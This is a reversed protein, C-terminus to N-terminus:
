YHGWERFQSKLFVVGLWFHDVLNKWFRGEGEQTIEFYGQYFVLYCIAKMSFIYLSISCIIYARPSCRIYVCMHLYKFSSDLGVM